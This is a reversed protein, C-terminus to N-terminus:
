MIEEENHDNCDDTEDKEPPADEPTMLSYIIDDIVNDPMDDFSNM